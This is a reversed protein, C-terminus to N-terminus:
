EEVKYDTTVYDNHDLVIEENGYMTEVLCIADDADDAEVEVIRSHIEIVEIKFKKM